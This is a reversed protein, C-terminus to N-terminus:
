TYSCGLRFFSTSVYTSSIPTFFVASRTVSYETLIALIEIQHLFQIRTNGCKRNRLSPFSVTIWSVVSTVSLVFFFHHQRCEDWDRRFTEEVGGVATFGICNRTKSYFSPVTRKTSCYEVNPLPGRFKVIVGSPFYIKTPFWFDFLMVTKERFLHVPLSLISVSLTSSPAGTKNTATNISIKSECAM